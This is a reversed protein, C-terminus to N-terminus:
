LNNLMVDQPMEHGGGKFEEAIKSVDISKNSRLGVKIM